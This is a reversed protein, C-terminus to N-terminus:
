VQLYRLHIMHGALKIRTSRMYSQTSGILWYRTLKFGNWASEYLLSLDLCVAVLAKREAKEKRLAEGKDRLRESRRQRKLARKHFRGTRMATVLNEKESTNSGLSDLLTHWKGFPGGGTRPRLMRAPTHLCDSSCCGKLSEQLFFFGGDGM